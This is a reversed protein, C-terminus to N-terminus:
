VDRQMHLGIFVLHPWIALDVGLVAKRSTVCPVGTPGHAYASGFWRHVSRQLDDNEDIAEFLGQSVFRHLLGIHAFSKDPIASGSDDSQCSPHM